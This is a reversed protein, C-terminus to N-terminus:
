LDGPPGIERKKKRKELEYDIPNLYIYRRATHPTYIPVSQYRIGRKSQIQNHLNTKHAKIDEKKRSPRSFSFSFITGKNVPQYEISYPAANISALLLFSPQHHLHVCRKSEISYISADDFPTVDGHDICM